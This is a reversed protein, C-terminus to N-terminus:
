RPRPARGGGGGRRALEHLRRGGVKVASVMPPLQEIEGLFAPIVAEIDGQDIPLPRPDGVAGSADLTTPSVGFVITGRYGKGTEQLFRLLRTARGLGVLLVGTADPDLTGAHGVRRQHYIKRVKAVVDHSTWGAPKDVVIVGHTAMFPRGARLLFSTSSGGCSRTSTTTPASAPPSATAVAARPRPSAACM